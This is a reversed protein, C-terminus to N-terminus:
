LLQLQRAVVHDWFLPDLLPNPHQSLGEPRLDSARVRQCRSGRRIARRRPPQALGVQRILKPTHYQSRQRRRHGLLEADVGRATRDSHRESKRTEDRYCQSGTRKRGRGHPFARDDTRYRVARSGVVFSSWPLNAVHSRKGVTQPDPAGKAGLLHCDSMPPPDTLWFATSRVSPLSAVSSSNRARNKSFGAAAAHSAPSSNDRRSSSASARSGRADI